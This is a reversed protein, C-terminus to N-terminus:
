FFFAFGAKWEDIEENEKRDTFLLHNKYDLRFMFRRTIYYHLGFGVHAAAETREEDGALSSDAETTITGGGLIFFPEVGWFSFPKMLLSANAMLGSSYNGIIQSLNLEAAFEPTFSYGLYLAVTRAGSFNGTMFGMEWNRESFDSQKGDNLQVQKGALDLTAKFQEISAWGPKGRNIEVKFWDTRRKLVRIHEGREIIDIIPYGRGPGTRLELFPDTVEVNFYEEDAAASTILFLTLLAIFARSTPYM